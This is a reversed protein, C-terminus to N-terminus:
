SSMSDDGKGSLLVSTPGSAATHSFYLSAERYGADAPEFRVTVGCQSGAALSKGSCDDVAITFGQWGSTYKLVVSKVVMSADGVNTLTIQQKVVVGLSQVGFDWSPPNLDAVASPPTAAAGSGTLAISFMPGGAADLAFNLSASRPGAATPQFRLLTQCVAGPELTAGPSYVPPKPSCSPDHEIIFDTANPGVVRAYDYILADMSGVSSLTVSQLGSSQGVTVTGFSLAGPSVSGKPEVGEGTLTAVPQGGAGGFVTLSGNQLGATIPRFTLSIACSHGVALTFACENSAPTTDYDFPGSNVVMTSFVLTDSGTNTLIISTRATQGVRVKGFSFNSTNLTAQPVGSAYGNLTVNSSGGAGDHSVTLSGFRDGAGYPGSQPKFVVDISCTKGAGLTTGCAGANTANVRAFEGSVSVGSIALDVSGTNSLTVTNAASTTGFTQSAFALKTPSVSAVPQVLALSHSGGAAVAIAGVLPAGSSSSVPLPTQYSTPSAVGLEGEDNLGFGRVSGDMSRVLTHEGGAAISMPWKSLVGSADFNQNRVPAGSCPTTLTTPPCYFIVGAGLQGFQNSGWAWVTADQRLAVSHRSGAAIATVGTLYGSGNAGAVQVPTTSNMAGGDGLQSYENWGWGFVAGDSKRIALSHHLGAAVASMAWSLGSVQVPRLYCMFSGCTEVITVGMMQNYSTTKNSGLKGLQNSGWAWVTGDSKVALTHETGGAVAVVNKLIGGAPDVVEVPSQNPVMNSNFGGNGLQGSQNAGWALVAGDSGRIALSHSAGAAIAVIGSLTGTGGIGKVQVPTPSCPAGNCTSLTTNGVGLEGNENAGWAWVTGDSKLGLAHKEGAAIATFDGVSTPVASFAGTGDGWAVVKGSTGAAGAQDVGRFASMVM